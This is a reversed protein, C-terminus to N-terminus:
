QVRLRNSTYTRHKSNTSLYITTVRHTSRKWENTTCREIEWKAWSCCWACLCVSMPMPVCNKKEREKKRREEFREPVNSISHYADDHSNICHLYEIFNAENEEIYTSIQRHLGDRESVRGMGMWVNWECDAVVIRLTHINSNFIIKQVIWVTIETNRLRLM